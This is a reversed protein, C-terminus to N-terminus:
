IDVFKLYINTIQSSFEIEIDDRIRQLKLIDCRFYFSYSSIHLLRNKTVAEFTDTDIKAVLSDSSLIFPHLTIQLVHLKVLVCGFVTSLVM